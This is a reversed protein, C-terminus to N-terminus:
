EGFEEALADWLRRRAELTAIATQQAEEWYQADMGCVQALMRRALPSHTEEDLQIHRDLYFELAALGEPYDRGLGAVIQRFMEPILDERGITFAAAIRHLEVSSATELTTQVFDLAPQPINSRQIAVQWPIGHAVLDVLRDISTTDAGADEMAQLYLEFHSAYGGHGDDDSEEALVIENILRRTLPDRSPRWPVDVCTLNQQLAKLLSMFDWVAFVHLELFRQLRKLSTLQRFVRHELIQQRLPRTAVDIKTLGSEASHLDTMAKLLAGASTTTDHPADAFQGVARVM